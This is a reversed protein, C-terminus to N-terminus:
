QHNAAIFIVLPHETNAFVGIFSKLVSMLRNSGDEGILRSVAPQKGIILELNPILDIILQGQTGVGDRIKKQWKRITDQSCTLLQEVLNDLAMIIAYFPVNSQHQQFKGMVYHGHHASLSPVIVNILSSKGIGSYGRITTLSVEGQCVKEFCRTLVGFQKERGYIKRPLNFQESVDGKAIDFDDIHHSEDWQQKMKTLDDLLGRASQYREDAQKRMLKDIVKSLVLPIDPDIKHAPEAEYALHAHVLKSQEQEIFPLRGTVLEYLSVGLSYFDSRYDIPCRLRGTQEPSVYALSGDITGAAMQAQRDQGIRSAIDFDVLGILEQNIDVTINEPKIDKHIVGNQHLPLLINTVGIAVELTQEVTLKGPQLQRLGVGMQEMILVPLHGHMVLGFAKPVGVVNLENLTNYELRIRSIEDVCPLKTNLTKFVVATGSNTKGRYVVTRNSKYDVQEISYGNIQLM